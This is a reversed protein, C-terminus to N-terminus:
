KEYLEEMRVTIRTIYSSPVTVYNGSNIFEIQRSDGALFPAPYTFEAEQDFDYDYPHAMADDCYAKGGFYDGYDEALYARKKRIDEQHKRRIRLGKTYEDINRDAFNQVSYGKRVTSSASLYRSVKNLSRHIDSIIGKMKENYDRVANILSSRLLFLSVFLIVALIGLMALSLIVATIVTNRTGRNSFVFPLFCLLYTMLCFAGLGLATKKTMRTAIVKQVNDAEQEIYQTYQSLDSLDPPISDVMENEKNETYDRIDNMQFPTLRSINVDTIESSRQMQSVSKKVSRAQQKVIYELSKQSIMYDRNWKHFEDEPRDFFLGYDQETYVKDTDCSPDLLVAIDESTCFMNEAAKDTLEGPIESKIREMENDIVESTAALKRDYSTVLVSLPTDDNETELLYLHRAHMASGPIPNSAFILVSALFRIYDGRFNRHTQPLLDLVMFRMKDFYMNRDAFQSYENDGREKWYVEPDFFGRDSTRISICHMETPYAINLRGSGTFERRLNEKMRLEDKYQNRELNELRANPKLDDRGIKEMVWDHVDQKVLADSLIYDEPQFCLWTALKQLPYELANQFITKKVSTLKEFYAKWSNEWEELSENDEPQRKPEELSALASHDVVDFPNQRGVMKGSCSNIVVARWNKRRGVVDMLDPVSDLLSQGSTNWYCFALEKNELFPEFFLRNKERIADIHEKEAILVTFM